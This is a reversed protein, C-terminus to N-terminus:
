PTTFFGISGIRADPSAYRQLLKIIQGPARRQDLQLLTNELEVMRQQSTIAIVQEAGFPDRVRLPLQLNAYTAPSPDSNMPYLMQITGDGSVNFIIVARAGVDSLIIEIKQGRHYQRDDPSVRMVQPSRTSFQKLTRIM